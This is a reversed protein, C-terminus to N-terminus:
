RRYDMYQLGARVQALSLFKRNLARAALCLHVHSAPTAGDHDDNGRARTAGDRRGQWAHRVDEERVAPFGRRFTWRM